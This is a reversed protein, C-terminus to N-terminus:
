PCGIQLATKCDIHQCKHRKRWLIHAGCHQGSCAIRVLMGCSRRLIYFSPLTPKPFGVGIKEKLSNLTKKEM